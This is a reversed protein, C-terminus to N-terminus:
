VGVECGIILVGDGFLKDYIDYYSLCNNNIMKKQFVRTKHSPKSGYKLSFRATSGVYKHITKTTRILAMM